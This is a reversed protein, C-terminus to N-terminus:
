IGHAESSFTKTILIRNIHQLCIYIIISPCREVKLTDL